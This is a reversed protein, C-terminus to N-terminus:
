RFTNMLHFPTFSGARRLRPAVWDAVGRLDNNSVRYAGYLGGAGVGLALAFKGAAWQNADANPPPGKSWIDTGGHSEFAM